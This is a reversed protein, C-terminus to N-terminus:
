QTGYGGNASNSYNEEEEYTGRKDKLVLYIAPLM